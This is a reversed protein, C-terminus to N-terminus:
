VEASPREHLLTRVGAVRGVEEEGTEGGRAAAARQSGRQRWDRHSWAPRSGRREERALHQRIALVGEEAARAVFRGGVRWTDSGGARTAVRFVSLGRGGGRRGRGRVQEAAPDSVM